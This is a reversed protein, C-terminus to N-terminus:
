ENSQLYNVEESNKFGTKVAIVSLKDGKKLKIPKSYLFWSNPNLGKGNIKYAFSVAKTLCTLNLGEATKTIIPKQVVIQKGQPQFIEMCQKEPMDWNISYRHNFDKDWKSFAIRLRDIEKKYAPNDILNYVEYPDNKVDYFEEKTRPAQFWLKQVANLSDKQLLDVMRRMMPMKMPYSLPLYNSSEPKYNRIYRYREDRIYGMKDVLEDFRDRAGYVYKRAAQEYKGLFAEGQMYKPPKINAASLITAPIDVFSCLRNEVQGKRYGDPFRIMFPVLTGSEYLARKGRPMPGGNDSYFIIITNDLLGAHKVEDIFVGVEKDMENINSYLISMDRRVVPDDPYYPPLIVKSPDVLLPRNAREWIQSEHTSFINFVSFFPMGAPRHKWHAENSCEDWATLPPAFQYDTKANNTCYYGAQRLYETYCKVGDPLVVEYSHLGEPFYNVHDGPVYNRMQNAGISTPYMGTILAARSPSSVGVTCYMHQYRISEESLKDLNPTNAVKDGYCGLFPSIDECVVCLINPQIASQKKATLTNAAILPLIITFSTKM